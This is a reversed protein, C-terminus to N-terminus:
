KRPCPPAPSPNRACNSTSNVTGDTVIWSPPLPHPRPCVAVPGKVRCAHCTSVTSASPATVAMEADTVLAASPAHYSIPVTGATTFHVPVHVPVPSSTVHVTSALRLGVPTVIVAAPVPYWVVALPLPGSTKQASPRSTAASAVPPAPVPNSATNADDTPSTPVTADPMSRTRTTLAPVPYRPGTVSDMEPACLMHWPCFM